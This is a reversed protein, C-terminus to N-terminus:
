AHLTVTSHVVSPVTTPATTPKLHAADSPTETSIYNLALKVIHTMNTEPGFVVIPVRLEPQLDRMKQLAAKYNPGGRRVFIKMQSRLLPEAYDRLAHIIGSFTAAIDTFNAIAGGILLARPKSSDTRRTALSLLQCAYQYTDDESPDGSYEGYNGLEHGFGLDAVTDAYIVSAGGGAIMGWMRGNPNLVTLKLSAGTQEDLERVVKEEDCFTRGFPSPFEIPRGDVNWKAANKFHACDDLEGRMDLPYAEGSSTLTFPNMELSHFNLDVFVRYVTKIFELIIAAKAPVVGEEFLPGLSVREIDEGVMVDVHKV